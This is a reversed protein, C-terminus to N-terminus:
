SSFVQPVGDVELFQNELAATGGVEGLMELAATGGSFEVEDDVENDDNDDNSPSVDPLVLSDAVIKQVWFRLGTL